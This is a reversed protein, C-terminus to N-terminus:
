DARAPEGGLQVRAVDNASSLPALDIEQGDVSLRAESANGIRLEAGGTLRYERVTGAPLLAYELRSGDTGTFEVWSAAALRLMVRQGAIAQEQQPLSALSAMVPSPSPAPPTAVPLPAAAPPGVDLAADVGPPGALSAGRAAVLGDSRTETRAGDIPTLSPAQAIQQATPRALYVLPVMVVATLLAYAVPTAYRAVWRPTAPVVHQVVLAPTDVPTMPLADHFADDRLGAARAYSRLYGRVFVTAGLREFHGAELDALVGSPIHAKRAFEDRGLGTAARAAQLREGISAAAEVQASAAQEPVPTEGAPGQEQISTM